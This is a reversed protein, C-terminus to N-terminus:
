KKEFKKNLEFRHLEDSIADALVALAYRTKRESASLNQNKALHEVKAEAESLMKLSTDLRVALSDGDPPVTQLFDMIQKFLAEKFAEDVEGLEGESALMKKISEQNEEMFVKLNEDLRAAVETMHARATSVVSDEMDERYRPIESLIHDPLGTILEPIKEKIRDAVMDTKSDVQETIFMTAFTAAETPELYKRIGVTIYGMYLCVIGIIIVGFLRSSRVTDQARLIEDELFNQLIERTKDDQNPTNSSDAM